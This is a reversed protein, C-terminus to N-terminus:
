EEEFRVEYVNGKTDYFRVEYRENMEKVGMLELTSEFEEVTFMETASTGITFVTYYDNSPINIPILTKIIKM